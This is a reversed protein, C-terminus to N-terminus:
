DTIEVEYKMLAQYVRETIKGKTYYDTAVEKIYAEKATKYAQFAEYVSYFSGLNKSKSKVSICARFNQKQKSFSVGIPYEGRTAKRKTYLYNIEFPVFCCTQPSYVKNGKVLIDKDLQYGERYNNDFWEKFNSFSLWEECVTCGIYTPSRKHYDDNYCRSLMSRWLEYSKILKGNIKVNGNFDNIGVGCVLRNKIRM